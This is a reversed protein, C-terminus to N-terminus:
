GSFRGGEGLEFALRSNTRQGEWAFALRVAM